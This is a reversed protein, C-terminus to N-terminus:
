RDDPAPEAAVWESPPDQAIAELPAIEEVASPGAIKEAIPAPEPEAVREVLQPKPQAMPRPGLKAMLARFSDATIPRAPDRARAGVVGDAVEGSIHAAQGRMWVGCGVEDGKL